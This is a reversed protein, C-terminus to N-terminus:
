AKLRSEAKLSSHVKQGSSKGTKSDKGTMETGRQLLKKNSEAYRTGFRFRTELTDKLLDNDKMESLANM